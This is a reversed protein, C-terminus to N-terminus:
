LAYAYFNFMRVKDYHKIWQDNEQHIRANDEITENEVLVYVSCLQQLTHIDPLIEKGFTSSVILVVKEGNLQQMYEYCETTKTFTKLFNISCRLKKQVDKNYQTIREKSDLVILTFTELNEM